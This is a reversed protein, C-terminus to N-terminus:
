PIFLRPHDLLGEIVVIIIIIIIYIISPMRSKKSVVM